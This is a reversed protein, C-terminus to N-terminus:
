DAGAVKAVHGPHNRGALIRIVCFAVISSPRRPHSRDYVCDAVGGMAFASFAVPAVGRYEDGPIVPSTPVIVLRRGYQITRWTGVLIAKTNWQEYHGRVGRRTIYIVVTMVEAADQPEDFVVEANVLPSEPERIGPRCGVELQEEIQVLRRAWELCNCSLLIGREEEVVFPFLAVRIIVVLLRRSLLSSFANQPRYEATVWLLSVVTRTASRPRGM